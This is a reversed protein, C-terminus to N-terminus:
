AARWASLPGAEAEDREAAQSLVIDSWEQPLGPYREPDSALLTAVLLNSTAFGDRASRVNRDRRLRM